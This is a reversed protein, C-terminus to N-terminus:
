LTISMFHYLLNIFFYILSDFFLVCVYMHSVKFISIESDFDDISPKKVEEEGEGIGSHRSKVKMTSVASMSGGSYLFGYDTLGVATSASATMKRSM